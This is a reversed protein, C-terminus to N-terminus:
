AAGVLSRVTLGLGLLVVVVATGVPLLSSLRAAVGNGGAALRGLRGAIRVLLLGTLTLTGAMGVGYALILAIGFWTRGLGIAGLLVVLASPSPVLGGAVGLGVLGRRSRPAPAAPAEQIRRELVAVRSGERMPAPAYEPAPAEPVAGFHGHGHAPAEGTRHTHWASRLLGAGVVTILLGSALGLWALVAEGTFASLVTLLLGVVLVGVTHTVTVTAGVVLADRPRGQRGALYAAMVTKGHGPILAHGAGLAVAMLVALLGLPATPSDTGVLDTFTRDLWVTVGGLPGGSLGSLESLGSLPPPVAASPGTEPTVNLRATRQDLPAALLDDPYTRLQESVSTGPVSSRILRVGGSAVATIERWGTREPLFDDSFGVAGRAHVDATLGCTLRSTRLGGQGPAYRLGTGTVRWTVPSGNVTLRQAGALAACRAAGYASLEADSVEGSGDADMEPLAQLTPLEASDLVATNEIRDPTIRLGDYHNVTSDGLPHAAAHAPSLVPALAVAPLAFAPCMAVTLCSLAFLSRGRRTEPRTGPGDTRPTTIDGTPPPVEASTM